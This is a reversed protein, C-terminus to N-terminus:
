DDDVVVVDGDDPEFPKVGDEMLLWQHLHRYLVEVTNPPFANGIQRGISTKNGVFRHRLPFGQVCAYERLTLGRTGSPHYLQVCGTTVTGVLKHPDYPARRPQFHRVGQIDHLDHGRPIGDLAQGITALPKRGGHKAEPFPPLRHGPSAAIMVLRKRDQPSGWTCLRVVGWCVSYGYQTIGSILMRFYQLNRNQTIGFTQELTIIRPRTKKILDHCGFLASINDLEHMSEHTHAPSFFQCPPSLHLVDVRIHQRATETVFGHICTQYLKADPFNVPYTEWVEPSKDVAGQIKFGADQAGRSVGGAGCFADFFIYKQGFARTCPARPATDLDIHYQGGAHWSGGKKCTWHWRNRLAEESVRYQVDPVETSLIRELVEEVPRMHQGRRSFYFSFKWRCVLPWSREIQRRWRRRFSENGLRKPRASLNHEPYPANTLILNGKKIVSKPKVDLLIPGDCDNPASRQYLQLICLENKKKELKGLLSRTRVLPLGRIIEERQGTEVVIKVQVFDISYPGFQQAVIEVLDGPM